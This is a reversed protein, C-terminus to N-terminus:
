KLRIRLNRTTLRVIGIAAAQLLLMGGFILINELWEPLKVTTILTGTTLAEIFFGLVVALVIYLMGHVGSRYFGAGIMWGLVFFSFIRFWHVVAAAFWSGAFGLESGFWFSEVLYVLAASLSITLSVVVSSILAGYFYTKRTIGMKVYFKMFGSVSIIGVVLMFIRAPHTLFGIYGYHHVLIVEKNWNGTIVREVLESLQGNNGFQVGFLPLVIYVLLAIGMFWVAWGLQILSMDFSVKRLQDTRM